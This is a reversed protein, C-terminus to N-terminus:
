EGELASVPLTVCRAYATNNSLSIFFSNIAASGFDVYWSSNSFDPLISSSWFIKTDGFKSYSSNISNECSCNLDWCGQSLCSDTVGCQGGPVTKECNIILTRLESITPLHWDLFEGETLNKCYNVASGWNLEGTSASSWIFGTDSDFCPPKKSQGCQPLIQQCSSDKWEYNTICECSYSDDSSQICIGTSFPIGICPNPDCPNYPTEGDDDPLTDSTDSDDGSDGDDDPLTDSTDSDDGSDGGDDPASDSTDSDDGSDGDDDPASDSTDSDDGSDGGDDPASDSTDSDNGSDAISHINSSNNCSIVLFIFCITFLLLFKKM